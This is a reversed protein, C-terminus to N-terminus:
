RTATVMLRVAERLEEPKIAKPIWADAGTRAAEEELRFAPMNSMLLIATVPSRRRLDGVLTATDPVDPLLLDLLLADPRTDAVEDLVAEGTATSSVVRMDGEEELFHRLLMTVGRADDCVAVRIFEAM